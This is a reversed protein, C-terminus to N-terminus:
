ENFLIIIINYNDNTIDGDDNYIVGDGGDGGDHDDDASCDTGLGEGVFVTMVRVIVLIM